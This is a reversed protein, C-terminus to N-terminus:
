NKLCGPGVVVYTAREGIRDKCRADIEPTRRVMAYTADVTPDAGFIWATQKALFPQQFATTSIMFNVVPPLLKDASVTNGPKFGPVDFRAAHNAYALASVIPAVPTTFLALAQFSAAGALAPAAIWGFRWHGPKWGGILRILNVAALTVVVFMHKKVAYNSGDHAVHLAGYQLFVLMASAVGACGLVTDICVREKWDCAKLLAIAGVVGCLAAVPLVQAYGFELYGDNEAAMRIARFSPHLTVIALTGAILAVLPLLSETPIRRAARWAIAASWAILVMTTALVQLAALAHVFMALAGVALAIGVRAWENRVRALVLLTALLVVDNILQPYFYNFNVEWGILSHTGALLLFAAVSLAVKVPSDKGILEILLVYCAFVSAITIQVIAVLGSGGLRGLVAAMWHAGDPYINMVGMQADPRRMGHKMLEDVLMFHQAIDGTLQIFQGFKLMLLLAIALSFPIAWSRHPNEVKLGAIQAAPEFYETKM